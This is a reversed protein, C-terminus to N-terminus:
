ERITAVQPIPLNACLVEYASKGALMYIYSSFDKLSDTYRRRTPILNSNVHTSKILENMLFTADSPNWSQNTNTVKKVHEQYKEAKEGLDILLKIHGPVFAFPKNRSYKLTLTHLNKRTFEEITQIEEENIGSLSIPNDYGNASLIDIITVPVSYEVFSQFNNWFDNM